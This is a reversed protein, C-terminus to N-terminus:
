TVEYDLDRPIILISLIFLFECVLITLQASFAIHMATESHKIFTTM